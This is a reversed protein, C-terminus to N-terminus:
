GVALSTWSNIIQTAENLKLDFTSSEGIYTFILLMGEYKIATVQVKMPKGSEKDVGSVTIRLADWGKWKINESKVVKGNKVINQVNKTLDPKLEALTWSDNWMFELDTFIGCWKNPDKENEYAVFPTEDNMDPLIWSEPVYLSYGKINYYENFGKPITYSNNLDGPVPVTITEDLMYETIRTLEYPKLGNQTNISGTIRTELRKLEYSYVNVDINTVRYEMIVHCKSTKDKLVDMPSDKTADVAFALNDGEIIIRQGSNEKLVLSATFANQTEVKEFVSRSESDGVDAKSKKLWSDRIESKSYVHKDDEFYETRETNGERTVTSYTYEINKVPDAKVDSISRFTETGEKVFIETQTIRFPETKSKEAAIIGSVQNLMDESGIIVSYTSGDWFVLRSLSQAVFRTPIYTRDKYIVPEADLEIAEGNVTAKKNGIQLSIEIDDKLVKISKDTPNWVIHEPDNEVGLAVLLERLGLLVRGNCNIPTNTLNLQVGDVIVKLTPTEKIVPKTQASVSGALLSVFLLSMFLFAAKKM